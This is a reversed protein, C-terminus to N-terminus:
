CPSPKPALCRAQPTCYAIILHRPAINTLVTRISHADSLGEFTFTAVQARVNVVVESAVVRTPVEEEVEDDSGVDMADEEGATYACDSNPVTSRSQTSFAAAVGHASDNLQLMSPSGPLSEIWMDSPDHM